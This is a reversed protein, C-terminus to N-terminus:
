GNVIKNLQPIKKVLVMTVIAVVMMMLVPKVAKM